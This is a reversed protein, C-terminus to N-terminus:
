VLEQPHEQALAPGGCLPERRTATPHAGLLGNVEELAEYELIAEPSLARSVSLAGEENGMSERGWVSRYGLSANFYGDANSMMSNRPSEQFTCLVSPKIWHSDFMSFAPQPSQVTFCM